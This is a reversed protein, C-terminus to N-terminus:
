NGSALVWKERTFRLGGLAAAIFRFCGAILIGEVPRLPLTCVEEM